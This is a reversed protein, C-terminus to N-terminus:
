GQESDLWRNFQVKGAVLDIEGHWTVMSVPPMKRRWNGHRNVDYRNLERDSNQSPRPRKRRFHSM